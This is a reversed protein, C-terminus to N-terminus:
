CPCVAHTCARSRAPALVSSRVLFPLVARSSASSLPWVVVAFSMRCCAAGGCGVAAAGAAGGSAPSSTTLEGVERGSSINSNALRPSSCFTTLHSRLPPSISASQGAVFIPPWGAKPKNCAAAPQSWRSIALSSSFRPALTSRGLPRPTVASMAAAFWPWRETRSTRPWVARVFAARCPCSAHTCARSRAPALVSSRVLFPSVAKNSAFSCPWVAVTFSMRCCVDHRESPRPRARHATTRNAQGQTTSETTSTVIAVAAKLRLRMALGPCCRTVRCRCGCRGVRCVLAFPWVVVASGVWCCAAGGCGAAATAGCVICAACTARSFAAIFSGSASSAASCALPCAREFFDLFFFLAPWTVAAPSGLSACGTVASAGDGAAVGLRATDAASCASAASRAAMEPPPSDASWVASTAAGRSTRSPLTSASARARHSLSSSACCSASHSAFCPAAASAALSAAAFLTRSTAASSASRTTTADWARLAAAVAAAVAAAATSAAAAASASASASSRAVASPPSPPLLPAAPGDSALSTATGSWYTHEIVASIMISGTKVTRMEARSLGAIKRRDAWGMVFAVLYVAKGVLAAGDLLPELGVVGRGRRAGLQLALLEVRVVRDAAEDSFVVLGAHLTTSAHPCATGRLRWGLNLKFRPARRPRSVLLGCLAPTLNRAVAWHMM